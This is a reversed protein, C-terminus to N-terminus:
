QLGQFSAAALLQDNYAQEVAENLCTTATGQPKHCQKTLVICSNGCPKSKAPNCVPGKALAISALLTICLITSLQKM